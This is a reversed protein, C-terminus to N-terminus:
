QECLPKLPVGAMPEFAEGPPDTRQPHQALVAKNSSTHGRFCAKLTYLGDGSGTGERQKM